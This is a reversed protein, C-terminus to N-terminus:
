LKFVTHYWIDQPKSQSEPSCTRAILEYSYHLRKGSLSTDYGSSFWEGYPDNVLFGDSDYGRIVIIHGPKTFYGHVIVPNGANISAKIDNLTGNERFIDKYGPFTEILFKLDYPNHRDRGLQELKIYLKDELQCDSPYPMGLYCLCMAVCTVNCSGYPNYRNDLQQLYPVNLDRSASSPVTETPTEQVPRVDNQDLMRWHPSYIWWDGAGYALRVKQSQGEVELIREIKWHHRREVAVLQHPELQSADKKEKKLFTVTIAEMIQTAPAEGGMSLKKLGQDWLNGEAIRRRRLGYEVPSGANIYLLFASPVDSWRKERLCASITNFGSAGYFDAGLNYAFSCLASHMPDNMDLWHPIKKSLPKWYHDRLNVIFYEDAQQKTIADKEGVPKGDPYCTTGWGITWPEAKTLPDPYAHVLGDQSDIRQCGEFEQILHIADAPITNEM